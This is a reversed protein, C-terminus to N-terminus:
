VQVATLINYQNAISIVSSASSSVRAGNTSKMVLPQINQTIVSSSITADNTRQASMNKSLYGTDMPWYGVPNDKLIVNSYL